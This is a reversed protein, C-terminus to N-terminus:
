KIKDLEDQSVISYADSSDSAVNALSSKSRNSIKKREVILDVHHLTDSEEAAEVATVKNVTEEKGSQYFKFEFTPKIIKDNLIKFFSSSNYSSSEIAHAAAADENSIEKELIKMIAENNSANRDKFTQFHLISKLCSVLIVQNKFHEIKGPITALTEQNSPPEENNNSANSIPVTNVYLDDAFSENSNSTLAEPRVEFNIDLKDDDDEEEGHDHSANIIDNISRTNGEHSGGGEESKSEDSNAQMTAQLSSAM